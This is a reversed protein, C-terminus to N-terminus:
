GTSKELLSEIALEMKPVAKKEQGKEAGESRHEQEETGYVGDIQARITSQAGLKVLGGPM